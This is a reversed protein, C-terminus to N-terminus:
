VYDKGYTGEPVKVQIKGNEVDVSLVVTDIAPILIEDGATTTISYVDNAGTELIDSLVGIKESDEYVDCSIMDQMYFEGDSLPAGMSREIELTRGKMALAADRDDVGKFKVLLEKGQVSCSEVATKIGDCFMFPQDCLNAPDSSFYYAKVAGRTGHAGSVVGIEFYVSKVRGTEM